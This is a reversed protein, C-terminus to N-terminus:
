KLVMVEEGLVVSGSLSDKGIKGVPEEKPVSLGKCPRGLTNGLGSQVLGVRQHELGIAM